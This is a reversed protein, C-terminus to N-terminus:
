RTVQTDSPFPELVSRRSLEWVQAPPLNAWITNCDVAFRQRYEALLEEVQRHRRVSERSATVSRLGRTGRYAFYTLCGGDTLLEDYRALIVGVTRPAFNTFPLGSVIADYRIDNNLLEIRSEHIQTRPGGFRPADHTLERLRAAFRPNAEVVDLRDAPTLRDLLAMTISGTGAGVELVACPRDFRTVPASMARALSLSSPAVAGIDRFSDFAERLFMVPSSRMSRVSRISRNANM